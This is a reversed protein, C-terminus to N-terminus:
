PKWEELYQNVLQESQYAFVTLALGLTIIVIDAASFRVNRPADPAVVGNVRAMTLQVPLVPLLLVAGALWAPVGIFMAINAVFYAAALGLASWPARVVNLQADQRVRDFLRYVTVPAFFTRWFPSFSGAGARRMGKWNEYLWFFHYLGFTALNLAIFKATGVPWWPPTAVASTPPLTGPM